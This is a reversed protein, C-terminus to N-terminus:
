RAGDATRLALEGCAKELERAVARGNGIPSARMRGRLERRLTARRGRDRGLAVAREVYDRPSAAVLSELGIARLISASQRSTPRHGELTVVPVGMWLAECTTLAGSFPFPDLAVDIDGYEELLERHPVPGRLELRALDIGHGACRRQLMERVWPDDLSAWKLVLRSAPLAGLIERWAELVGDNVKALNNFCGFVPEARVAMSPEPAYDPPLYAFQCCDLPVLPETFYESAGPAIQDRGLLVADMERLGTSAFYGLWSVQVPAARLAFTGLRNAATHGALDVLVDIRDARIRQALAADTMEGVFTWGRSLAIMEETVADRIVQNAYCHVEVRAPDHHRLVDRLFWGVPHQYLDPSVYGVRLAGHADKRATLPPLAPFDSRDWARQWEGALDRLERAALTADYQAGLLLNSCADTFTPRAALANRYAAMAGAADGCAQLCNGINNWAEPLGPSWGLAERHADIAEKVRGLQQLVLGRDAHADAFRPDLRLAMDLAALAEAFRNALRLAGALNKHAIAMSPRLEVAHRGADIADAVRGLRQLVLCRNVHLAPERPAADLAADLNRLADLFDRRRFCSEANALATALDM